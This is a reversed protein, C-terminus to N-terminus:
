CYYTLMNQPPFASFYLFMRPRGLADIKAERKKAARSEKFTKQGKPGAAWPGSAQVRGSAQLAMPFGHSFM